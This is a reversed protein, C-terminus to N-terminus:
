LVFTIDTYRLQTEMDYAGLASVAGGRPTLAYQAGQM